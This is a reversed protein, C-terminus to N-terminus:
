RDNSTCQEMDPEIKQCRAMHQIATLYGQIFAQERADNLYDEEIECYKLFLRREADSLTSILWEGYKCMREVSMHAEGTPEVTPQAPDIAHWFMRKLTKQLTEEGAQPVNDPVQAALDPAPRGPGAESDANSVITLM